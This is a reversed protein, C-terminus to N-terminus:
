GGIYGMRRFSRKLKLLYRRGSQGPYYNSVAGRRVMRVTIRLGKGCKRLLCMDATWAALPAAANGHPARRKWARRHGSMDRRIYGPHRRTVDVMEGDRFQWIQVPYRSCAYCDFLYAFRDDRALMLRSSGSTFFRAPGSQNGWVHPISFYRGEERYYILSSSCCHAGGWYFTFIVEPDVSSDLNIVRLPTFGPRILECDACGPVNWMDRNVQPVGDRRIQLNVSGLKGFDSDPYDPATMSAETVVGRDNIASADYRQASAVAPLALMAALTVIM